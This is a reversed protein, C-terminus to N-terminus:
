KLAGRVTDVASNFEKKLSIRATLREAYWIAAFVLIIIAIGRTGFIKWIAWGVLLGFVLGMIYNM